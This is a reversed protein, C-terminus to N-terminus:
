GKTIKKLIQSRDISRNSVVFIEIMNSTVRRQVFCVGVKKYSCCLYFSSEDTQHRNFKVSHCPLGNTITAQM